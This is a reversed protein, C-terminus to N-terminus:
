ENKYMRYSFSEIIPILVWFFVFGIAFAIVNFWVDYNRLFDKLFLLLIIDLSGALTMIIGNKTSILSIKMIRKEMFMLLLILSLVGSISTAYAVGKIGFFHSLVLNLIINEFVGISTVFSPFKSDRASYYMYVCIDRLVFFLLGISYGRLIEGAVIADSLTYNGRVFLMQIIEKSFITLVLFCPIIFKLILMTQKKVIDNFYLKNGSAYAKSMSAFVIQMLSTSFVTYALSNVKSALSLATVSGVGFNSAVQNDLLTNIQLMGSSLLMPPMMSFFPKVDTGKWDLVPYVHFGIKLSGFWLLLMRFLYGLVVYTILGQPTSVGSFLAILIPIPFIIDTISPYTNFDYIRLIISLASIIVLFVLSWVSIKILESSLSITEENMGSALLRVFFSPFTYVCIIVGIVILCCITIIKNTTREMKKKDTNYLDAATPMLSNSFASSFLGFISIVLLYSVNYADSAVSAGLVEAVKIERLLGMMKTLLTCAIAVVSAFQLNKSVEKKMLGGDEYNSM